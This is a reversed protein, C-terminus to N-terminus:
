ILVMLCLDVAEVVFDGFGMICLLVWLIVCCLVVV